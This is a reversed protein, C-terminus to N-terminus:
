HIIQYIFFLLILHVPYFWYFFYKNLRIHTKVIPLYLCILVGVMAFIQIPMFGSSVYVIILIVQTIITKTKDEYFLYFFFPVLVGYWGYDLDPVNSNFDLIFVATLIVIFWGDRKNEFQDILLIAILLTFMINLNTTDFALTFPIQSILAFMWLRFMYKIKDSTHRYGISLQYAFIPFAIRGIIRFMEKDPFLIIGIHDVLMTLIAIVKLTDSRKKTM